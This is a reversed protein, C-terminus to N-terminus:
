QENQLARFLDNINLINIEQAFNNVPSCVSVVHNRPLRIQKFFVTIADGDSQALEMLGQNTRVSFSNLARTLGKGLYKLYSEKATWLSYFYENKESGSLSELAHCEDATFFRQAVEYKANQIQEVDIGVEHVSTAMVVWEGSHSLNFHFDDVGSLFPKGKGTVEIRVQDPPLGKFKRVIARILVEGLLTRQLDPLQKHKVIKERVFVPLSLMIQGKVLNFEELPLVKAAFVETM